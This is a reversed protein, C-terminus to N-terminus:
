LSFWVTIYCRQKMITSGYILGSQMVETISVLSSALEMFCDSLQDLFDGGKISGSPENGHECCSAV